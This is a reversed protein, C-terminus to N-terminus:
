HSFKMAVVRALLFIHSEWVGGEKKKILIDKKTNILLGLKENTLNIIVLFGFHFICFKGQM